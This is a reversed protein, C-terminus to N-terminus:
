NIEMAVIEPPCFLRARAWTEGLGHTIFLTCNKNLKFLGQDYIKSIRTPIPGLPGIFPLRIQGGHTHGSLILNCRNSLPDRIIDPNHSLLICPVNQPIDAIASKLDCHKSFADETGAIAISKKGSMLVTHENQLFHIGMPELFDRVEKTRDVTQYPQQQIDLYCGADHNGTIAFVGIKAHLNRLPSLHEVLSNENDIFDGMLFVIDPELANIRDVVRKMFVIQKYPGVHFDSAVVIRLKPANKITIKQHKIILREPEIFSGYFTLCFGVTMMIFLIGLAENVVWSHPLQLARYSLLSMTASILLVLVILIDWFWPQDYFHQHTRQQM